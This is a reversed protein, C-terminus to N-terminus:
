FRSSPDQSRARRQARKEARHKSEQKFSSM